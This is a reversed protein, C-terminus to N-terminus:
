NFNERRGLRWNAGPRQSRAGSRRPRHPRHPQHGGEACSPTRRPFTLDSELSPNKRRNSRRADGGIDIVGRPTTHRRHLRGRTLGGAASKTIFRKPATQVALWGEKGVLWAPLAVSLSQLLKRDGSTCRCDFLTEILGPPPSREREQAKGRKPAMQDLAGFRRHFQM